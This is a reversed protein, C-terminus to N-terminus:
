IYVVAVFTRITLTPNPIPLPITMSSNFFRLPIGFDPPVSYYNREKKTCVLFIDCGGLKFSVACWMLDMCVLMGMEEGAMEKKGV